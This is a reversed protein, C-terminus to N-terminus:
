ANFEQLFTKLNEMAKASDSPIVTVNQNKYAEMNGVGMLAKGVIPKNRGFGPAKLLDLLKM